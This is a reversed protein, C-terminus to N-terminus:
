ATDDKRAALQHVDLALVGRHAAFAEAAERMRREDETAKLRAAREARVAAVRREDADLYDRVAATVMLGTTIFLGAAYWPAGHDASVTACYATFAGAVLYLWRLVRETLTM